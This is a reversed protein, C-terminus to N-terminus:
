TTLRLSLTRKAPLEFTSKLSFNQFFTWFCQFNKKLENVFSISCINIEKNNKFEFIFFCVQQVNILTRNILECESLKSM